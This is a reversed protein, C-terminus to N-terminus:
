LTEVSTYPYKVKIINIIIIIHIYNQHHCINDSKDLSKTPPPNTPKVTFVGDLTNETRPSCSCMIDDINSKIMMMMM